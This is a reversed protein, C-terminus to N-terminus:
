RRTALVMGALGLLSLLVGGTLFPAAIGWGATILSGILPASMMAVIMVAEGAASVRAIRDPPAEAQVVARYPVLMFVTTGGMVAFTALYLPLPVQWGSMAAVGLAITVVGSLLAPLGMMLLPKMGKVAGALLAGLVGGVGSAAVSIGFVTTDFGFADNLFAIQTDYLFWIFHASAAFALVSLLKGNALYEAIGGTLRRWFNEHLDTPLVREPLKLGLLVAFAILSLAANIAFVGQAPMVAILLGGLAPGVIKSTQNVGQHLGNAAMLLPEPTALQIAAQKAPTFASDVVARLAVVVLLLEFSPVLVLLLTLLGRGLNSLLLVRKIETRDVWTALLPGVLVYPLTLTISLAALALPGQGWTYVIVAIIAVYDLWDAFDAPLSALLLRRQVPLKLLSILSDM